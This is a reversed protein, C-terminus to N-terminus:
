QGSLNMMVTRKGSPLRPIDKVIRFDILADEGLISVLKHRAATEDFQDEKALMLNVAYDSAGLQVFQHRFVANGGPIAVLLRQPVVRRGSTDFITEMMRGDIASLTLGPRGCTCSGALTALDGTDYRVLPMARSHLDTVIVRGTEGVNVPNDSDVALLEVVYHAANIHYMGGEPCQHALIGMETCAYRGMLPVGLVQEIRHKVTPYLPSSTVVAGRLNPFRFDTRSLQEAMAEITPPCGVIVRVDQFLGLKIYRIVWADDLTQPVAMVQNHRWLELRSKPRHTGNVYLMRTGPAYGAWRMFYLVEAERRAIKDLDLPHVLPMGYSGSTSKPVTKQSTYLHSLFLDYNGKLTEKNLIPWDRFSAYRNGRYFPVTTLAHDLIGSLHPSMEVVGTFGPGNYDDLAGLYRKVKGGTVRDKSWYAFDRLFEGPKKTQREKDLQGKLLVLCERAAHRSFRFLFEFVFVDAHGPPM